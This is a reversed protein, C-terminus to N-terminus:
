FSCYGSTIFCYRSYFRSFTWYASLYSHKIKKKFEIVLIGTSLCGKSVCPGTRVASCFFHLMSELNVRYDMPSQPWGKEARVVCILVWGLCLGRCVTEGATDVTQVVYVFTRVEVCLAMVQASSDGGCLLCWEPAHLDSLVCTDSCCLFVGCWAISLRFCKNQTWIVQIKILSALIDPFVRNDKTRLWLHVLNRNM